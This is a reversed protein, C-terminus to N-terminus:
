SSNTLRSWTTLACSPEAERPPSPQTRCLSRRSAARTRLTFMAPFVLCGMCGLLFLAFTVAGISPLQDVHAPFRGDVMAPAFMLTVPLLVAAMAAMALSSVLTGPPTLRLKM